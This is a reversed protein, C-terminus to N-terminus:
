RSLEKVEGIFQKLAHWVPKPKGQADLANEVVRYADMSQWHAQAAPEVDLHQYKDQM